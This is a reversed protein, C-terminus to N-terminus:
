IDWQYTNWFSLASLAWHPSLQLVDIFFLKLSCFLIFLWNSLCLLFLYIFTKFCGVTCKETSPSYLSFRLAKLSFLVWVCFSVLIPFLLQHTLLLVSRSLVMSFQKSFESACICKLRSNQYWDLLQSDSYFLTMKLYAPVWSKVEWANKDKPDGPIYRGIFHPNPWPFPFILYLAYLLWCLSFLFFRLTDFPLFFLRLPCDCLCNILFVQLWGKQFQHTLSFSVSHSITNKSNSLKLYRRSEWKIPLLASICLLQWRSKYVYETQKQESAWTSFAPHM